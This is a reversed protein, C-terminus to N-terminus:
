RFPTFRPSQIAAKIALLMKEGCNACATPGADDSEAKPSIM